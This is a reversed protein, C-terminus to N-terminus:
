GPNAGAGSAAASVPNAPRAGPELYQRLFDGMAEFFETRQRETSLFHDGGAQLLYRHPVKLRELGAVLSASHEPPVVRDRDGHVVLVPVKIREVQLAPSNLQLDASDTGLQQELRYYSAFFRHNRKFLELDTVGGFSVACRYLDPSRIAGMLAAYGGYSAGVICIRGPDATGQGILWRTADTVDDQMSKGWNGDAMRQFDIGYGTSGRYNVQLVAYGRNALFQSWYDFGGSDRFGPGGHPLIVAPLRTPDRGAPLTLYGELELGDRAAFRVLRKPALLAPDIEPYATGMPELRDTRRDLTYYRGPERAEYAFVVARQEDRSLSAILNVTDPLRRDLDEQLARMRENWFVARPREANYYVGVFDRTAPSLIARGRIDYRPDSAVLTLRPPLQHLDAAFVAHRGEHPASVYLTYPDSGFAIPSPGPGAMPDYQWAQRWRRAGPDRVWVQLNRGRNTVAVRVEGAGDALWRHIGSRRRVVREYRGTAIDVRYVDDAMPQEFDAALLLHRADAPDLHVIQDGFQPAWHPPDRYLPRASGTGADIVLLRSEGVPIKFRVRQSQVSVLLRDDGAWEFWNLDTGPDRNEYLVRRGSGDWNQLALERVGDRNQFFALREGGPALTVLNMSPLRAFYQVPLVPPPDGQARAGALALLALLGAACHRFMRHSTKM